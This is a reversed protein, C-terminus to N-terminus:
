EEVKKKDREDWKKKMDALWGLALNLDFLVSEIADNAETARDAVTARTTEEEATLQVDLKEGVVPTVHRVAAMGFVVTAEEGIVVTHIKGPRLGELTFRGDPGTRARRMWRPPVTRWPGADFFFPPISRRGEISILTVGEIPKGGPDVVRGELAIRVEDGARAAAPTAAQALAVVALAALAVAVFAPLRRRPAPDVM